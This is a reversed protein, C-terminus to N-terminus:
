TQCYYDLKDKSKTTAIYTGGKISYLFFCKNQPNPASGDNYTLPVTM